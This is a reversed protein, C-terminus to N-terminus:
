TGALPKPGRKFHHLRHGSSAEISATFDRAGLILGKNTATRIRDIEGDPILERFLNRYAHRRASASSGLALYVPHPHWHGSSIGRANVHYSSWHFDAPDSVIGARVPNLEIYRQCTLFYRESEVLSSRFRGEWLTGTRSHKRNFFRVYLSGLYQMFTSVTEAVSPTILLHAHNSMLVWAHLHVDYKDAAKCLYTFYTAKDHDDCFCQCRNNGRQIVHVPLNVPCIRRLRAM